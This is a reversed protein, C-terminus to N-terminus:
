YCSHQWTCNGKRSSVYTMGGKFKRAIVSNTIIHINMRVKGMKKKGTVIDIGM